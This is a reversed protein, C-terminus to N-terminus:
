AGGIEQGLLSLQKLFQKANTLTSAGYIIRRSANGTQKTKIFDVLNQYEIYNGGGVMFVIADQFPARNKPVVDGGKLLKPDLYLYDDLEGGARCEMLQETIKTVPLNHRKVVLNKVGEMVFSSGQTVLKSFMSVTKTGSGEYQNPNTVTSKMISKWRQVYPMPALDCGCEKLVQELRQYEADAVNSCIYYIIFLRMKDEPTGFEPDKMVEVLARDLAQKSMIKEELEFFSDLRRSKIFNLINTAIKTHMDILRKKEMLQPLSNVANTLKATNDNVMSFAVDMEGEIGMTTRLKKIEDESSRYQELEEQIAEAVTPFPSGKHSSWFKDRSDLDCAKMKSKAGTAAAKEADDEVIVRNLSLELVDHALAQYTWTHHLPTAMDVNRDMLILLPRQFSFTGTQTADMHFLNNRADWLNERLKKELKRAVMEAASNKPCRIIPVNGLTVFVSFLSDVISDMIGEMEFDQTNARNIAYYSLSDSNQHKLVFMDDELTIFNVYQDYVKHINAVCGAQLAGAALDELRQRSIPSIFNLHYVDYLGNQFDQAIRGLNEETPACFYIAPVDPISDRDSHLQIHLTVGLERLERISILPSIIDQGIRDYILIKWVPEAALAKTQPQNLNLMQKIANRTKNKNIKKKSDGPM